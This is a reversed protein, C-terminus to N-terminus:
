YRLYAGVRTYFTADMIYEIQNYTQNQFKEKDLPLLLESAEVRLVFAIRILAPLSPYKRQKILHTLYSPNNGILNSIRALSLGRAKAIRKLNEAFCPFFAETEKAYFIERNENSMKRLQDIGKNFDNDDTM